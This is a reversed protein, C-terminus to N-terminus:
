AAVRAYDDLRRMRSRVPAHTTMSGRMRSRVLAACWGSRSEGPACACPWAPPGPTRRGGASPSAASTGEAWGDGEVIIAISFRGVAVDIEDAVELATADFFATVEDDLLRVERSGHSTRLV